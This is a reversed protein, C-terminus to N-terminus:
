RQPKPNNGLGSGGSSQDVVKGPEATGSKIQSNNPKEPEAAQSSEKAPLSSTGGFKSVFYNKISKFGDRISGLGDKIHTKIRTAISVIWDKFKKFVKNIKSSSDNLNTSAVADLNNNINSNSEM